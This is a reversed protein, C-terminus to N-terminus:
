DVLKLASREQFKPKMILQNENDWPAEHRPYVRKVMCSKSTNKFYLEGSSGSWDLVCEDGSEQPTPRDTIVITGEKDTCQYIQEGLVNLPMVLLTTMMLFLLFLMESVELCRYIWCCSFYFM